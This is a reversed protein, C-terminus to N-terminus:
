ASQIKCSSMRGTGSHNPVAASTRGANTAGQSNALGGDSGPAHDTRLELRQTQKQVRYGGVVALEPHWVREVELRVGGQILEILRSDAVRADTVPWESLITLSARCM